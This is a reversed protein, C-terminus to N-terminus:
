PAHQLSHYSYPSFLKRGGSKEVVQAWQETPIEINGMRPNNTHKTQETLIDLLLDALLCRHHDRQYPKTHTHAHAHTHILAAPRAVAAM